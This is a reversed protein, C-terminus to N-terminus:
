STAPNNLEAHERLTEAAIRLIQGNKVIVLDTGCQIATKRALASARRLADLSARLDPNKAHTIDHANLPKREM